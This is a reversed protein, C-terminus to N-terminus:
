ANVEIKKGGFQVVGTSPKFLPEPAKVQAPAPAFNFAPKQPASTPASLNGLLKFQGKGAETVVKDNPQHRKVRVIKRGALEEVTAKEEENVQTPVDEDNLRRLLEEPTLQSEALRKSM